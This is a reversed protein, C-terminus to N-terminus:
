VLLIVRKKIKQKLNAKKLHKTKAELHKEEKKTCGKIKFSVSIPTEDQQINLSRETLKTALDTTLRNNEQFRDPTGGQRRQVGGSGLQGDGQWAWRGM